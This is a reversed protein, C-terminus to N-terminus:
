DKNKRQRRKIDRSSGNEGKAKKLLSAVCDNLNDFSLEYNKVFDDNDSLTVENEKSDISQALYLNNHITRDELMPTANNSSGTSLYNSSEVSFENNEQNDKGSSLKRLLEM